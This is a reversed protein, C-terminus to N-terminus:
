RVPGGGGVGGGVGDGNMCTFSHTNQPYNHLKIHQCPHKHKKLKEQKKQKTQKEAEIFLKGAGVEQKRSIGIIRIGRTKRTRRTETTATQEKWGVRVICVRVYDDTLCENEKKKEERDCGSEIAVYLSFMPPPATSMVVVEHTHQREEFGWCYWGDTSGGERNDEIKV